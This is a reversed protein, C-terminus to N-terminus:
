LTTQYVCNTPLFVVDFSIAERAREWSQSRYKYQNKISKNKLEFLFAPLLLLYVPLSALISHVLLCYLPVRDGQKVSIM